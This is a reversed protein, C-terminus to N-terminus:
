ATIYQQATIHQGTIYQQAASYLIRSYDTNYQQAASYLLTSYDKIYQQAASYLLTTLHVTIYQRAIIHQLTSSHQWTM